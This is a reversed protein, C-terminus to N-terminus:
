FKPWPCVQSDKALLDLEPLEEFRDLAAEYEAIHTSPMILVDEDALEALQKTALIICSDAAHRASAFRQIAQRLLPYDDANNAIAIAINNIWAMEFRRLKFAESHVGNLPAKNVDLSFILAAMVRRLSKLDHLDIRRLVSRNNYKPMKILHSSPKSNSNIEFILNNFNILSPLSSIISKQKQIQSSPPRKM